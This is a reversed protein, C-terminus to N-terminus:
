KKHIAKKYAFCALFFYITMQILIMILEWSVRELAVGMVKIRLFAPIAFQSPFVSIITRLSMPISEIPWSVGSMFLLLPSLFVLFMLSHVRTKFLTSLALGLFSVALLYPITVALQDIFLGKEPFGFIDNLVVLSLVFNFVYVTTYALSKGLILAKIGGKNNDYVKYFRFLNKEKMSGGLLGIGILLTQQLILFIIGPMLFSGYGGAPNYENFVKIDMLSASDKASNYDVGRNMLRKVEIKASMVSTAKLLAKQAAKYYLFYAGDCYISVPSQTQAILKKEFGSPIRFIANVDGKDLVNKAEKTSNAACTVAVESSADMYKILERSSTTNDLDVVCVPVDELVENMYAVSYIVPYAFSAVLFLLIAGGDTFITKLETYFIRGLTNIFKM